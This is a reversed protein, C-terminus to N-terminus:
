RGTTTFFNVSVLADVPSRFYYIEGALVQLVPPSLKTERATVVNTPLALDELAVQVANSSYLCVMVNTGDPVTVSASIDTILEFDFGKGAKPFTTGYVPVGNSAVQINLVDSKPM